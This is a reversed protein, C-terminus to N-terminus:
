LNQKITYKNRDNKTQDSREGGAIPLNWFFNSMDNNNDKNPKISALLVSWNVLENKSVQKEIYQILLSNNVRQADEHTKYSSLFKIIDNSKFKEWLLSLGDTNKYGDKGDEGGEILELAANLNSQNVNKDKYFMITQNLDGSYSIQMKTGAQMKLKSTVLLGPHSRIKLGFTAPSEGISSMEDFTNKMELTASAIQEYSEKLEVTTYLRSVDIYDKKYGFWRGMQMLTDYMDSVRLFYSISLGELTLGRSLKEGGIAIVNLGIEANQEYELFELARGNVERIAISNVVVKISALIDDWAPM